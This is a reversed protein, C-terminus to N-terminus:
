AHVTVPTGLPLASALETAVANPVRVCGHSVSQGILAPQNTGHIGIEGDGGNFSTLTPSFGSLGLAYPGYPGDPHATRVVDTVYLLGTPTPDTATGTAAATSLVARTGRYVTLRHASLAVDIRYDTRTVTVQTLPVWGNSGLPRIPLLVHLWGERAGLVLVVRPSGYATRRTLTIAPRAAGPAPYVSMGGSGLPAAIYSTTTAPALPGTAVTTITSTACGGTAAVCAVAVLLAVVRRYARM